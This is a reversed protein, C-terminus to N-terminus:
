SNRAIDKVVAVEDCLFFKPCRFCVRWIKEPLTARDVTSYGLKHFFIPVYTLAILRKIALQEAKSEIAHILIKGGGKKQHAKDIVITRLEALDKNYVDLAGCGIAQRSGLEKDLCELVLFNDIKEKLEKKTLPLLKASDAQLYIWEYIADIDDLQAPRTSLISQNNSANM